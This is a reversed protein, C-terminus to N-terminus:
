RRGAGSPPTSMARISSSRRRKGGPASPPSFLQVQGAFPDLVLSGRKSVDRIADAVLLVPKVTPHLALDEDRGSRFTNAGAYDWVTTCIAGQRGLEINNVHPATGNKYVLVMEHKSRDPAWAAM